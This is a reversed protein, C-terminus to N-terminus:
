DTFILFRCHGAIIYPCSNFTGMLAIANLFTCPPPSLFIKQGRGGENNTLYPSWVFAPPSVDVDLQKMHKKGTMGGQVRKFPIARIKYPRASDFYCLQENKSESVLSFIQEPMEGCNVVPHM